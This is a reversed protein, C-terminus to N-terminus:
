PRHAYGVCHEAGSAAPSMRNIVDAVTSPASMAIPALGAEAALYSAYTARSFCRNAVKALHSLSPPAALHPRTPSNPQGSCALARLGDPPNYLEDDRACQPM